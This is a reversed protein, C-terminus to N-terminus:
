GFTQCRPCKWASGGPRAPHVKNDGHIGFDHYNECEKLFAAMPSSAYGWKFHTYSGVWSKLRNNLDEDSRGVYNVTFKAGDTGLAYNGPSIKTIQADINQATLSYPGTLGTSAM